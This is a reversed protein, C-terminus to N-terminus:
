PTGKKKKKSFRRSRIESKKSGRISISERKTVYLSHGGKAGPRMEGVMEAERRESGAQQGEEPHRPRSPQRTHAYSNGTVPCRLKFRLSLSTLCM